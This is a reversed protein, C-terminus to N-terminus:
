AIMSHSISRHILSNLITFLNGFDSFTKVISFLKKIKSFTKLLLTPKKGSIDDSAMSGMWRFNSLLSSHSTVLSQHSSYRKRADGGDISRPAEIKKHAAGGGKSGESGKSGASGREYTILPRRAGYALGSGKVRNVNYKCDLGYKYVM